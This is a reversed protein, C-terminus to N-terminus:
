FDVYEYKQQPEQISQPTQVSNPPTQMSQLLINSFSSVNDTTYFKGGTTDALCKLQNSSSSVLVVDIHIDKRERVLEKAFECPDGGCNEGGDTILVIKKPFSTSMGAFDQNVAQHLGYTLPTSGGLPVSNMASVLTQANNSAVAAIQMTASCSASTSGLYSDSKTSVNYKGSATKIVEKVKALNRKYPNNGGNQGFVRFGINTSAPLQSVIQSMTRQAERIWYLMSGSYDMVIDITGVQAALVKQSNVYQPAYYNNYVNSHNNLVSNQQISGNPATVNGGTNVKYKAAIATLSFVLMVFVSLIFNKM